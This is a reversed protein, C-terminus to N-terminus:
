IVMEPIATLNMKVTISVGGNVVDGVMMVPVVM